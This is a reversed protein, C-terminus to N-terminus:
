QWELQLPAQWVFREFHTGIVHKLKELDKPNDSLMTLQLGTADAYLLALGFDFEIRGQRADCSVTLKHEFQRCLREIYRSPTASPIHTTAMCPAAIGHRRSPHDHRQAALPHRAATTPGYTQNLASKQMANGIVSHGQSADQGAAWETIRRGPRAHKIAMDM